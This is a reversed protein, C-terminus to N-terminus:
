EDDKDMQVSEGSKGPTEPSRTLPLAACSLLNGVRYNGFRLYRRFFILSTFFSLGCSSLWLGVPIFFSLSHMTVATPGELGRLGLSLGLLFFSASSGRYYGERYLFVDHDDTKGCNTLFSQCLVVLQETTLDDVGFVSRSTLADRAVKVHSAGDKKKEYRKEAGPYFSTIGQVLHGLTYASLLGIIWDAKGLSSLGLRWAASPWFFSWAALIVAGFAVAGPALYGLLEYLTFKLSKM